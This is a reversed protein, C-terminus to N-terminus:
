VATGAHVYYGKFREHQNKKLRLVLPREHQAQRLMLTPKDRGDFCSRSHEGKTLSLTLPDAYTDFLHTLNM